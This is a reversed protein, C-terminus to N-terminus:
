NLYTLQQSSRSEVKFRWSLIKKTAMWRIIRYSRIIMIIFAVPMYNNCNNYWHYFERSINQYTFSHCTKNWQQSRMRHAVVVILIQFIQCDSWRYINELFCFNELLRAFERRIFSVNRVKVSFAINHCIKKSVDTTGKWITFDCPVHHSTKNKVENKNREHVLWKKHTQSKHCIILKKFTMQSSSFTFVALLSIKVWVQRVIAM